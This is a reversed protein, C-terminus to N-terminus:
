ATTGTVEDAEDASKAQAEEAKEEAEKVRGEMEEREDELREEINGEVVKDSLMRYGVYIPMIQYVAFWVMLGIAVWKITNLNANIQARTNELSGTIQNLLAVYQDLLPIFQGVTTNIGTINTSLAEIDNGINGINAITTNLNSELMRLQDPVPVLSEGIALVATDFPERPAYNIGLDFSLPVSIPGAEITRDIKLDSLRELTTDITAAIGALNPIATNIADLSNPLTATTMTTMQELLPQTDFLTTAVNQTAGSVTTLTAGAENLTAKVNELSATTTGVTNGLLDVTSNLGVGIADIAQGAFYAGAGAIILGVIGILIMIFGIIRRFISM